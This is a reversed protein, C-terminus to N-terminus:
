LVDQTSWDVDYTKDPVGCGTALAYWHKFIKGGNKFHVISENNVKTIKHQCIDSHPPITLANYFEYEVDKLNHIPGSNIIQDQQHICKDKVVPVFITVISNVHKSYELYMDNYCIDMDIKKWNYNNYSLSESTKYRGGDKNPNYHIPAIGIGYQIEDCSIDLRGAMNKAQEENISSGLHQQKYNKWLFSDYFLVNVIPGYISYLYKIASDRDDFETYVVKTVHFKNDSFYYDVCGGDYKISSHGAGYLRTNKDQSALQHAYKWYSITVHKSAM